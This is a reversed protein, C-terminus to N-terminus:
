LLDTLTIQGPIMDDETTNEETMDVEEINDERIITRVISEATLDELNKENAIEELRDILSSRDYGIARGNDTINLIQLVIDSGFRKWVNAMNKNEWFDIFEKDSM